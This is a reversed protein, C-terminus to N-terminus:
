SEDLSGVGLSSSSSSAITWAPPLLGINYCTPTTPDMAVDPGGVSTSLSPMTHDPAIGEPAADSCSSGKTNALPVEAQEHLVQSLPETIHSADSAVTTSSSPAVLDVSSTPGSMILEAIPHQTHAKGSLAESVCAVSQQASTQTSDTTPSQSPNSGVSPRSASEIQSLLDDCWADIGDGVMVSKSCQTIPDVWKSDPTLCM